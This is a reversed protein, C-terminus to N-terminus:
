VCQGDQQPKRQTTDHGKEFSEAIFQERLEDKGESCNTECLLPFNEWVNWRLM